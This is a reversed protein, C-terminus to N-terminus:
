HPRFGSGGRGPLPPFGFVPRLAGLLPAIAFAALATYLARAIGVGLKGLPNPYVLSADYLSRIALLGTAVIEALATGVLTLVVVTLINRRFVLARTLVVTYAALAFGLAFPGVVVVDGGGRLQQVYLLDYLVGMTIGAGLVHPLPAWLAVFVVLIIPVQPAIKTYDLHAADVLGLQVGLLLWALLAFVPWNM